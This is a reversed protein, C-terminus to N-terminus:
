LGPKRINRACLTTTLCSPMIWLASYVFYVRAKLGEPGCVKKTPTQSNEPQNEKSLLFSAVEMQSASRHPIYRDGGPKSPTTQAKSSSKGPGPLHFGPDSCAGSPPPRFAARLRERKRGTDRRVGSVPHEAQPGAQATPDTPPGCPHPPRDRLKRLKASGARLPHMPSPHMWSCCRTCTVRSCSSRWPLTQLLLPGQLPHGRLGSFSAVTSQRPGGAVCESGLRGWGTRTESCPRCVWGLEVWM